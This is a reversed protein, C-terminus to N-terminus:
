LHEKAAALLAGRDNPLAEDLVQELLFHLTQGIQKGELGEIEMAARVIMFRNPDLNVFSIREELLLQADQPCNVAINLQVFSNRPTRVDQHLRVDEDAVRFGRVVRFSEDMLSFQFQEALFKEFEDM